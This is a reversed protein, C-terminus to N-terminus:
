GRVGALLHSRHWDVALLVLVPVWGDRVRLELAPNPLYHGHRERVWLRRSSPYTSQVENRALVHNLYTRKKRRAAVVIDPYRELEEGMLFASTVEDRRRGEVHLDLPPQHLDSPLM